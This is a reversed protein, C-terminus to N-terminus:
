KEQQDLFQETQKSSSPLFHCSMSVYNIDVCNPSNKVVPRTLPRWGNDANCKAIAESWATAASTDTSYPVTSAYMQKAGLSNLANLKCQIAAQGAFTNPATLFVVTLILKKM